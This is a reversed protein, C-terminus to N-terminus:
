GKVVQLNNTVSFSGPVSNARVNVLHVNQSYPIFSLLSVLSVLTLLLRSASM